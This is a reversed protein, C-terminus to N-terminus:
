LDPFWPKKGPEKYSKGDVLASLAAFTPERGSVKGWTLVLYLTMFCCTSIVIVVKVDPQIHELSPGFLFCNDERNKTVFLCRDLKRAGM